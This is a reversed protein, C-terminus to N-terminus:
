TDVRFMRVRLVGDVLGADVVGARFTPMFTSGSGLSGGPGGDEHKEGHAPETRAPTWTQLRAQPRKRQIRSLAGQRSSPEFQARCLSNRRNTVAVKSIRTRRHLHSTDPSGCVSLTLLHPGTGSLLRADPEVPSRRAVGITRLRRVQM